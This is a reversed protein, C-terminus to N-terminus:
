VLSITAGHCLVFKELGPQGVRDDAREILDVVPEAVPKEFPRVRFGQSDLKAVLPVIHPLLDADIKIVLTM